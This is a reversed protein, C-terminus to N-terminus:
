LCLTQSVLECLGEVFIGLQPSERIKLNKESPYLLDKIEENYIELFSVTIMYKVEEQVESSEGKDKIEELKAHISTWLDDNLRPIIGKDEDSGTM